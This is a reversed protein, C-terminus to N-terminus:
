LSASRHNSMIASILTVVWQVCYVILSVGLALWCLMTAAPFAFILWPTSPDTVTFSDTEMVPPPATISFYLLALLAVLSLGAIAM